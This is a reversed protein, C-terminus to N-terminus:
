LIIYHILTRKNKSKIRRNGENGRFFFTIIIIIISGRMKHSLICILKIIYGNSFHKATSFIRYYVSFTKIAM